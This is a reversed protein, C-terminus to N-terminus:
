GQWPHPLSLLGRLQDFEAPLLIRVPDRFPPYPGKMTRGSIRLDHWNKYLIKGMTYYAMRCQMRFPFRHQGSIRHISRPLAPDMKEMTEEEPVIAEGEGEKEPM